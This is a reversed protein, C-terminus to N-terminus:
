FEYGLNFNFKGSSDNFADSEIPIGFDLKIPGVPLFLRLGIGWNSNLGGGFTATGPSYGGAQVEGIDYFLAGRVRDKGRVKDKFIPFTYEASAFWALDGGLPEGTFDKPGVERFDFGRLNNAGGLFMRQFIPISGNDTSDVYEFSGEINLITDFPLHFYQEAGLTIGYTDVDGGLFEGSLSTGAAIKHGTRPIFPSDRTDRLFDLSLQSQLYSGAEERIAPSAFFDINYIKIDQLRYEFRVENHEGASKSLHVASGYNRQDYVDSLFFIDRYFVEGGLRLKRGLFWPETLSMVFDRRETGFKLGARFKQGAGTFRPWNWLDFNGQTVDIFGVVNDISSFGVGFNVTGTSKETVTIDLDKYEPIEADTPLFEVNSFYGINNLVDQSAELLVTNYEDGPTVKLERRIVRDQTKTNGEINIKRIYYKDGEYINYTVHLSRGDAQTIQPSIDAEAYGRSGYYDQLTGVDKAIVAASYADGPVLRLAPILEAETFVRAGSLAVSAVDYKAGEFVTIVLDIKDETVRVKEVDTVRANLYGANQYYAEIREIDDELMLNDMKGRKSFVAWLSKEKLEMEKRLEKASFVTNGEFLIDRLLGRDGENITYIVRSFGEQAGPKISYSVTADPYGEKQYLEEIARQGEQVAIEDVINGIKLDAAGRLKSTKFASHGVFSVESLTARTHVVVIVRIGDSGVPESLMRINQVDGTAYLSKVDQELAPQSFVDGVRTSMNARIRDPTITKAGIYQVEIDRVIKSDLPSQALAGSPLLSLMGLMLVCVARGAGLVGRLNM